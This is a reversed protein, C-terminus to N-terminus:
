FGVAMGLTLANTADGGVSPAILAGDVADNREYVLQFVAQPVPRFALGLSLRGQSRDALVSGTVAGGAFDLEELNGDFWVREYRAVPVLVPADLGLFGRPLAVPLGADLWFGYRDDSLGELAVEVESELEATEDSETETAHNVAKDAFDTTVTRLGGYHTWLLEGELEVPGVSHRGDLGLTTVTEDVDLFDPTYEGVYGSVAVESGLAPSLQVRGAFANATNSGDFAGATPRVVAELLLKDRAPDRTQVKEEIAFDLTVGNLLYGEYSLVSGGGLRTEGTVGLGMETWAAAAPLVSAGRDILPRRPFNWLNDDHRLNFRGVPPLVAGFRVGLEPSVDFQGWAQELAIESGNTGELEQEFELGGEERSVGREVEIESLREYEIESYVQLRGGIRADTTVVFRRLTMSNSVEDSDNLEYRFSGYGGLDVTLDGAEQGAATGPGLLLAAAALAAPGATTWRGGREAGERRPGAERDGM